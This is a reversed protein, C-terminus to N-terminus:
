LKVTSASSYFKRVLISSEAEIQQWPDAVYIYVTTGVNMWVGDRTLRMCIVRSGRGKKQLLSTPKKLLQLTVLCGGPPMQSCFSAVVRNERPRPSIIEQGSGGQRHEPTPFGTFATSVPGTDVAPMLPGARLSSHTPAGTRRVHERERGRGRGRGGRERPVLATM